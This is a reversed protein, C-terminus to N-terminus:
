DVDSCHGGDSLLILNYLKYNNYSTTITVIEIELSSTKIVAGIPLRSIFTLLSKLQCM